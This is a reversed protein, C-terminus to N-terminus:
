ENEGSPDYPEPLEAWAIPLNNSPHLWRRKDWYAIIVQEEEDDDKSHITVLYRDHKPPQEEPYPHWKVQTM